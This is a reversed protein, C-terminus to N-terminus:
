EGAEPAPSHRRSNRGGKCCLRLRDLHLYIAPTTYLTLVQSVILGGIISIGLPQRLEAGDGTGLALPLAGFLAAFTTMMIPRFRLLCARRIAEQPSLDEDRELHLAVDIMMIANKMVIGILLIVGIFAIVTFELRWAVLALIAGIGASPLTSLITLPHIVSEYLIGLVIYIAVLAALTLLVEKVLTKQFAKATGSFGAHITTPMHIETSTWEIAAIAEGLPVKLPLNFSITAAVSNGRHNVALPAAGQEFRAIASLPVMTEGKTSVPTGTSTLGRATNALANLDRNRAADSAVAVPNSATPQTRQSWVTGAPANTSQVGSVVGGSTSIYIKDLVEPNQRYRPAVEMVVYHQNFPTYITSVQRQGFADYLTNAIQSMTIGLRSATERDIVLRVDLGHDQQDASPDLLEPVHKLAETLRLTWTRLEEIDDGQLVYQYQGSSGSQATFSIDQVAVLHLITGPMQSILATLRSNVEDATAKRQARAKLFIHLEAANTDAGEEIMADLGQVAPDTLIMTVTEELTKKMPESSINTDAELSGYLWGPDQQPLLGKPVVIYLCVNLGVFAFLVALTLRSHRMAVALTREYAQLMARYAHEFTRALWGRRRHSDAKLVLACLMPTTTLSVALSMLVATSLTVAFERLIRGIVDGMFLFPIFVAVLALSMALVTFGVEHVGRLTAQLRPMGADIHRSVNELVIVSDDIVLGTAIILAMLSLSDLSYRFCYMVGFTGLISVPVAVAPIIFARASQLFAFVTLIVLGGAILLAHELDRLSARITATRDSIIAIDIAPPLSARLQALRTKIRDVTEIVNAGPTRYIRVLISATSNTTAMTRYNEVSDIVEALDSLRVALGKRYAIVLNQFDKAKHAQDNAYIQFRKEGVEIAGKPSNANAAALAARVDEIGVGYKSLADPNLEVRVALPSSGLVVVQGVGQISALTPQLITTAINFIQELSLTTSALSLYTIPWTALNAKFYIPNTRLSAPLDARAANIAAQVDRAAGDLDRNLDFQLSIGTGDASNSSTMETVGAIASLHRELPTAVATAMTEPNAGSMQASVYIAPLDVEPMPAAPVKTFALAGALAVALTLLTTAVPRAIFPASINM